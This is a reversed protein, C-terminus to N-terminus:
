RNLLANFTAALFHHCLTESSTQSTEPGAGEVMIGKTKCLYQSKHTRGEKAASVPFTEPCKKGDTVQNRTNLEETAPAKASTTVPLQNASLTVGLGWAALPECM